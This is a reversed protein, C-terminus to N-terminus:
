KVVIPQYKFSNFDVITDRVNTNTKTAFVGVKTNIFNINDSEGIKYWNSKDTRVYGKYTNGIKEIKLYLTSKNSVDINCGVEKYQGNIEKGVIYQKGYREVSYERTITFYNDEDQYVILGAVQGEEAPKFDVETEISFNDFPSHTLFINRINNNWPGKLTGPGAKIRLYGPREKLSWDESNEKVVDWRGDLYTSDFNEVIPDPNPNFAGYHIYEFDANISKKQTKSAGAYLGIKPDKINIGSTSVVQTWEKGDGSFYSSITDGDKEIKIYASGDGISNGKRLLMKNIGNSESRAVFAPGNLNEKAMTYYNDDDGYIILGASQGGESAAFDLKTTLVFDSNGVPKVLINKLDNKDRALDGVETSIRLNDPKAELSWTDKNERIFKWGKDLRNSDFESSLSDPAKGKGQYECAGIDPLTGEFPAKNGFFDKGGNNEIVKGANICPSNAKLRYGDVTNMGDKGSGPNLLKPDTYIGHAEKPQSAGENGFYCNYDIYCTDDYVYGGNGLNYFINNYIESYRAGYFVDTYMGPKIYITNNYIKTNFNRGESFVFEAKRDNQLINYRITNDENFALPRKPANCILFGGGENDHGYNYQFTTGRCLFDCDFGMGDRSTKTGYSENYQYLSDDSNVPWMGVHDGDLVMHCEKTVNYEVLAGKCSDTIIGDGGVRNIFNNRVVVNLNPTWDGFYSDNGSGRNKWLMNRVSIGQRDVDEIVCNEIKLDDFYTPKTNKVDKPFVTGYIECTIGGTLKDLWYTGTGDNATVDHIYLDRIYIHHLAGADYGTVYVARRYDKSPANNTIELNNIEWYEQNNLMLVSSYYLGAVETNETDKAGAGNIIPKNGVGYMDIIIPKGESGSGQPRLLGTWSCGTKFLIKDGPQFVISNVKELTKWPKAVSTGPNTDNGNVSDVYYTNGTSDKNAVNEARVSPSLCTIIMLASIIFSIVKKM